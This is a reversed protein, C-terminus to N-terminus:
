LIQYYNRKGTKLHVVSTARSTRDIRQCKVMRMEICSKILTDVHQVEAYGQWVLPILFTTKLLSCRREKEFICESTKLISVYM